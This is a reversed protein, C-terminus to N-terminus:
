LAKDLIMLVKSASSRPFSLNYVRVKKDGCTLGLADLQGPLVEEPKMGIGWIASDGLMLVRFEDSGKPRSVIHSAFMADLNGVDLADDTPSRTSIPFRQRELNLTEYVNLIGLDPQMMILAYEFILFLLFGKVLVRWHNVANQM